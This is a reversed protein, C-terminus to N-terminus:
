LNFNYAARLGVFPRYDSNRDKSVAEYRVSLDIAKHMVGVNAAYTFGGHGSTNSHATAVSTYGLQPELYIGAPTVQYRLGAKLPIFNQAPYVFSGLRDRDGPFSIYGASITLAGGKFVPFLAKISGGRGSKQTENFTGAAIGFEAGLSLATRTSTNEQACSQSCIFSALGVTCLKIINKMFLMSLNFLLKKNNFCFGAM